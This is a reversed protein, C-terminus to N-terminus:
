ARYAVARDSTVHRSWLRQRCFSNTGPYNHLCFSGHINVGVPGPSGRCACDQCFVLQARGFWNSVQAPLPFTDGTRSFTGTDPSRARRALGPLPQQRWPCASSAAPGPLFAALNGGSGISHGTEQRSHSSNLRNPTLHQARVMHTRGGRLWRELQACGAGWCCAHGCAAKGQRGSPQKPCGRCTAVVVRSTPEAAGDAEKTNLATPCTLEWGTSHQADRTEM